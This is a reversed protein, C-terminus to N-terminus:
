IKIKDFIKFRKNVIKEIEYRFVKKENQIEVNMSKSYDFKFRQYFNEFADISKLQIVFMMSHIKFISSLNLEYILQDIKRKILFLEVYQNFFKKNSKNFLQYKHHLRLYIQDDIKLKLSKHKDDYRLKMQVNVYFMVDVVKKRYIMKILNLNITKKTQSEFIVFFTLDRSSIEFKLQNLTQNIFVNSVNNFNFQM